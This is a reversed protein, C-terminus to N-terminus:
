RRRCFFAQFITLDDIVQTEYLWFAPANHSWPPQLITFMWKWDYVLHRVTGM